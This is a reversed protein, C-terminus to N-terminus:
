SLQVNRFILHNWQLEKARTREESALRPKRDLLNMDKRFFSLDGNQSEYIRAAQKDFKDFVDADSLTPLKM